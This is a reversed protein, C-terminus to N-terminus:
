STPEDVPLGSRLSGNGAYLKSLSKNKAVWSGVLGLKLEYLTKAEETVERLVDREVLKNLARTVEVPDPQPYYPELYSLLDEPYFPANQDMLHAVATLLARETTSSRQWLYAFHVEGLSLMEDVAANVDSITVYGTRQTNAQKVLTYCVLQLFYPHGATVRLIKDVALDDYVLGPAVPETILRVAASTSLFDIKRYLAINFLVSWYDASMEELRRTGVFIFNLQEGHQMLHRLYTFFTPPLIGDAVLSEFAEFEDFVLLLTTDSPLLSKVQPLFRRQFLRTPDKQWQELGPVDVLLGRRAMIDAITWAFEELLAPMGAIVGLSQCDIYVPLLHPPLHDELRLLASTKGTRRQGILILVNRFSRDGANEAIFDFLDERGFFLLSDPRLPTGPIYPNPIPSFDRTPALLHVMDGFAFTKDRRNRDDFTITFSIRFRDIVQPKITFRVERTRGPPLFPIEEPASHVIYAPDNDLNVIINEAASRGNNRIDLAVITNKTPVLRKTKLSVTLQARGRLDEIEASVLGIWRRIISTVVTHEISRSYEPLQDQIQQCQAAAENLYVLHDEVLDVRESDRLNTLVPKLLDLNLSRKGEIDRLELLQLLQPRLLSLETISPADLLSHCTGCTLQWRELGDWTVSEQGEIEDLTRKLISLGSQPRDDLLFLGHALNAILQDEAQRAQNALHLLFDPSGLTHVYKHELLILCQTPQQYLQRYFRRAQANPTQAQRIFVVAFILGVLGVGIVISPLATEWPPTVLPLPGQPPILTGQNPGDDFVFRYNLGESSPLASTPTWFLTGIGNIVRQTEMAIWQKSEPDQIELQVSVEDLEVDSVAVSITYQDQDVDAVPNTLLPPRNEQERFLQVLGNATIALTDPTQSDDRNISELAFVSSSLDLPTTM